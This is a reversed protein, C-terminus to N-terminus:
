APVVPLAKFPRNADADGPDVNNPNNESEEYEHVAQDAVAGIAACEVCMPQPMTHNEDSEADPDYALAEVLPELQVAVQQYVAKFRARARGIGAMDQNEVAKNMAANFIAYQQGFCSLLDRIEVGIGSTHESYEVTNTECRAAHIKLAKVKKKLKKNEAIAKAARAKLVSKKAM